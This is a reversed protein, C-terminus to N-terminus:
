WASILIYIDGLNQKRTQVFHYLSNDYWGIHAMSLYTYCCRDCHLTLLSFLEFFVSMVRTTRKWTKWWTKWYQSSLSNLPELINWDSQCQGYASPTFTSKSRRQSLKPAKSVSTLKPITHSTRKRWLQAWPNLSFCASQGPLWLKPGMAHDDVAIMAYFTKSM